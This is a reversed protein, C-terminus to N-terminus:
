TSLMSTPNMVEAAIDAEEQFRVRIAPDYGCAVLEKEAAAVAAAETERSNHERLRAVPCGQYGTYFFTGERGQYADLVRPTRDGFKEGLAKWWLDRPEYVHSDASM